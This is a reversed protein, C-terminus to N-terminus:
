RPSARGGSGSSSSYGGPSASPSGGGSSGSGSSSGGSSPASAAGSGSSSAGASGSSGVAGGGRSYTRGSSQSGARSNSRTSGAREQAYRPQANSGDTPRVKTYGQGNVLIGSNTRDPSGPSGGFGPNVYYYGPWVSWGYNWYLSYTNPSWYWPFYPDVISYYVPMPVSYYANRELRGSDARMVPSITDQEIIFEEPFSLAVMLDILSDPIDSDALRTLTKANIKFPARYEMLAAELVESPVKHSLEIIEKISFNNGAVAHYGYIDQIGTDHTGTTKDLIKYRRITIIRDDQSQMLQIDLWEEKQNMISLGSIRRSAENGCNMESEFLRREGTDSWSYRYWGTCDDEKLSRSAGDATITDEFLVKKDEFATMMVAKGDEKPRIELLFKKKLDENAVPVTDSVLQWTGIWPLWRSDAIEPTRTDAQDSAQVPIAPVLTLTFAIWCLLSIRASIDKNRNLM